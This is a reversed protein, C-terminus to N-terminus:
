PQFNAGVQYEIQFAVVTVFDFDDPDDQYVVLGNSENLLRANSITFDGAPGAYGALGQSPQYQGNFMVARALDKAEEPSNGYCMVQVMATAFYITGNDDQNSYDVDPNVFVIAPNIDSKELTYARIRHDGAKIESNDVLETVQTFSKLLTVLGQELYRENAM